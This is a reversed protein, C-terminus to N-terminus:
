AQLQRQGVRSGVGSLTKRFKATFGGGGGASKYSAAVIGWSNESGTDSFTVTKGGTAGTDAFFESEHYSNSVGSPGIINTWGTDAGSTNNPYFNTAAVGFCNATLTTLTITNDSATGHNSATADLSCQDLEMIALTGATSGSLSLTITLATTATNDHRSITSRGEGANGGNGLGDSIDNTYTGNTPDSVTVTLTSNENTSAVLITSPNTCSSLFALTTSTGSYTKSQRTQKQTPAAM